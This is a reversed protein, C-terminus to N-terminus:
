TNIISIITLLQCLTLIITAQMQTIKTTLIQTVNLHLSIRWIEHSTHYLKEKLILPLPSLLTLPFCCITKVWMVLLWSIFLIIQMYISNLERLIKKTWCSPQWKKTKTWWYVKFGGPKEQTLSVTRMNNTLILMFFATLNRNFCLWCQGWKWESALYSLVCSYFARYSQWSVMHFHDMLCQIIEKNQSCYWRQLWM